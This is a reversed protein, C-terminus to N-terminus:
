ESVAPDDAPAKTQRVHPEAVLGDFDCRETSGDQGASFILRRSGVIPVSWGVQHNTVVVGKARGFLVRKAAVERDVRQEVVERRQRDDIVDASEVIKAVAHDPRNAVRPLAKLFIRDPHKARDSESGSQPEAEILRDDFRNLFVPVQNRVRRGCPQNLLIVLDEARARRLFRKTQQGRM